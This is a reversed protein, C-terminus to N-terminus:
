ATQVVNSIKDLVRTVKSAKDASLTQIIKDKLTKIINPIENDDSEERDPMVIVIGTISSFMQIPASVIGFSVNDLHGLFDLVNKQTFLKKADGRILQAEEKLQRLKEVDNNKKAKVMGLGLIFVKMFTKGLPALKPLLGSDTEKFEFGLSKLKEAVGNLKGKLMDLIAAETLIDNNSISEFLAIFELIQLEKESLIAFKIENEFILLEKLKKM